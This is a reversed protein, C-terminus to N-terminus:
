LREAVAVRRVFTQAFQNLRSERVDSGVLLYALVYGLIWAALGAAAGVVYPRGATDQGVSM